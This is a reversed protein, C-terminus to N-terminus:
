NTMKQGRFANIDLIARRIARYDDPPVELYMGDDEGPLLGNPAKATLLLDVYCGYDLKYVLYRVGPHDHAAVSKKLVHLLRADFLDDIMVDRQDSQLLFARARRSEIVETIIWQLLQNLEPKSNLVNAKDRQYWDRAANRVIQVSILADGAKLAALGIINIADRPVGEVARVFEEFARIETFVKRILESSDRVTIRGDRGEVAEFHNYLFQRFFNKAREADNEFVMFDDLNVDASV